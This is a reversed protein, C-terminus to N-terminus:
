RHLLVQEHKPPKLKFSARLKLLNKLLFEATESWFFFSARRKQRQSAICSCRFIADLIICNWVTIVKNESVPNATLLSQPLLVPKHPCSKSRGNSKISTCNWFLLMVWIGGAALELQDLHVFWCASYILSGKFSSSLRSHHLTGPACSGPPQKKTAM